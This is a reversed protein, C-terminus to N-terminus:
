INSNCIFSRESLKEWEDEKKELRIKYDTKNM